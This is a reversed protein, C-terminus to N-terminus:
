LVELLREHINDFGGNSMVLILDGRRAEATLFEIITETDSFYHADQGMQKLDNVLRESSFRQNSPIKSLLPPHRICVLDASDFCRSYTEQFVDRM